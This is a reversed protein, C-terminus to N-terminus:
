FPSIEKLTISYLDYDILGAAKLKQLERSLSPRPINLYQALREKSKILVVPNQNEKVILNLYFMIKNRISTQSIIKLKNQLLLHNNGLLKLFNELFLSDTQFLELLKSKNIYAIETDSCAVFSGLYIPNNSFLLYEGFCDDKKLHAITFSVESSYTIIDIEGKLIVGLNLCPEGESFIVTKASYAKITFLSLHRNFVNM